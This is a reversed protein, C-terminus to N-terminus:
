LSVICSVSEDKAELSINEDFKALCALLDHLQAVGGPLVTFALTPMDASWRGLKTDRALDRLDSARHHILHKVRLHSSYLRSRTLSFDPALPPVLPSELSSTTGYVDVSSGGNLNLAVSSQHRM